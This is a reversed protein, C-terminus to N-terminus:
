PRATHESAVATRVHQVFEHSGKHRSLPTGPANGPSWAGGTYAAIPVLEDVDNRLSEATPFLTERISKRKIWFAEM